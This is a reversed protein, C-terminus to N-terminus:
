LFIQGLMLIIYNKKKFSKKPFVFRPSPKKKKLHCKGSTGSPPYPDGKVLFILNQLHEVQLHLHKQIAGTGGEFM